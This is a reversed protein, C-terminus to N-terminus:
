RRIRVATGLQGRILGAIRRNNMRVCGHSSASGLPDNLSAGARGHLAVLGPGGDYRRLANSHATLPAAWPGIFGGPDPQRVRDLIAFLGIPTPTASTGVVVRFRSVVRGRRYVSLMRRSRDIVIFRSSRRIQVRDRPIWGSSGNPRVPLRVKLWTKGRRNRSGLIMLSQGNGSWKTRTRAYWRVSSGGPRHRVATGILIRATYTGTKRSPGPVRKKPLGSVRVGRDIGEAPPVPEAVQAPAAVSLASGDAADAALASVSLTAALMIAAVLGVTM